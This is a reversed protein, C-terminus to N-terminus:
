EQAAFFPVATQAVAGRYYLCTLYSRRERIPSHLIAALQALAWRASGALLRQRRQLRCPRASIRSGMRRLSGTPPHADAMRLPAPPLNTLRTSIAAARSPPVTRRM